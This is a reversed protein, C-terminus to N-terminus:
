EHIEDNIISYWKMSLFFRIRFVRICTIGTNFMGPHVMVIVILVCFWGDRPLPKLPVISSAEIQDWNVHPCRVGGQQRRHLATGVACQITAAAFVISHENHLSFVRLRLSAESVRAVTAVSPAPASSSVQVQLLFFVRLTQLKLNWPSSVFDVSDAIDVFYCNRQTQPYKIKM